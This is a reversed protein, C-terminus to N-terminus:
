ELLILETSASAQSGLVLEDVSITLQYRGPRLDGVTLQLDRTIDHAIGGERYTYSISERKGPFVKGLLGKLGKDSGKVFQLSYTVDFRTRGTLDFPLGYVEFYVRVTDELAYARDVVIPLETEGRVIRVSNPQVSAPATLVIDSMSIGTIAFSRIALSDIQYRYLGSDSQDLVIGLRRAGPLQATSFRTVVSGGRTSEYDLRSEDRWFLRGRLDQIAARFAIEGSRFQNGASYVILELDTYSREGRFQYVDYDFQVPATERSLESEQPVQLNNFYAVRKSENTRLSGTNDSYSFPFRFEGSLMHDVFALTCPYTTTTYYWYWAPIGSVSSSHIRQRRRDDPLGLRILTEGMDTKWGDRDYREDSFILNAMWVRAFHEVQRENVATTPDNDLDLWLQLKLSDRRALPLKNYASIEDPRILYALSEYGARGASDLRSLAYDFHRTAAVPDSQRYASYAKALRSRLSSSDVSLAQDAFYRCSDVWGRVASIESLRVLASVNDSDERLLSHLVELASDAFDAYDNIFYPRRYLDAMILYPEENEPDLDISRALEGRGEMEFTQAVLTKGLELHYLASKPELQVLRRFALESKRRGEVSGLERNILGQRMLIATDRPHQLALDNILLAASDLDDLVVMRDVSMTLYNLEFDSMKRQSCSLLFIGLTVIVAVVRLFVRCSDLPERRQM